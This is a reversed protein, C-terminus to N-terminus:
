YVTHISIQAPFVPTGKYPLHVRHPDLNDHQLHPERLSFGQTQDHAVSTRLASKLAKLTVQQISHCVSQYDVKHSVLLCFSIHYKVFNQTTKGLLILFLPIQSSEDCGVM